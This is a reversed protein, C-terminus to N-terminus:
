HNTRVEQLKKMTPAGNRHSIRTFLHYRNILDLTENLRKNLDADEEVVQAAPGSDGTRKQIVIPLRSQDNTIIYVPLNEFRGPLRKACNYHLYKVHGRIIDALSKLDEEPHDVGEADVLRGGNKDAIYKMLDEEGDAGVDWQVFINAEDEEWCLRSTDRGDGLAKNKLIGVLTSM